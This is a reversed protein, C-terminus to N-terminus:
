GAGTDPEPPPSTAAAPTPHTSIAATPAVTSLGREREIRERQVRTREIREREFRERQVSFVNLQRCQTAMHITVLGLRRECKSERIYRTNYLGHHSLFATKVM